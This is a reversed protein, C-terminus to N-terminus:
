GSNVSSDTPKKLSRSYIHTYMCKTISALIIGVIIGLVLGICSGLVGYEAGAVAGILAGVIGMLILVIILGIKKFEMCIKSIDEVSKDAETTEKKEVSDGKDKNLDPPDAISGRRQRLESEGSAEQTKLKILEAQPTFFDGGNEEVLDDIKKLLEHNQASKQLVYYQGGCKDLIKEASCIYKKIQTDEVGEDCAFLLITHKWVCESLLEMHTQAATIENTSPEESLTEVGIVLLLAHPGPPCLSVSREVEEKINEPSQQKSTRDWGPAEVVSIRRGAPDRQHLTCQGVKVGTLNKRNLISKVVKNKDDGANGLIVIRLESQVSSGGQPSKAAM